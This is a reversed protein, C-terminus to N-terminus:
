LSWCIIAIWSVKERTCTSFLSYFIEKVSGQDRYSSDIQIGAKVWIEKAFSCEFLVHEINEGSLRCWSCLTDIQVRKYALAVATPVVARCARWIFNTVKAPLDLSWLQKWFQAETGSQEGVLKRYCSKVTFLRTPDFLWFWSDHRVNTSVPIRNIM